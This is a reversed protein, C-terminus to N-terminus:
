KRAARVTKAARSGPPIGNPREPRGGRIRGSKPRGTWRNGSPRRSATCPPTPLERKGIRQDPQTVGKGDGHGIDSGAGIVLAAAHHGNAQPSAQKLPALWHQAGWKSTYAPDVAVVFLGANTAMQILRERFKATPLGAVLRRFSKGRRGRNPRNGQRERGEERNAVFDVDEIVIARCGHERALGTLASIAKRLHGDRTSAPM